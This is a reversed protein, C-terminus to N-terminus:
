LDSADLCYGDVLDVTENTDRFYVAMREDYMGGTDSCPDFELSLMAHYKELLAKLETKFDEIM